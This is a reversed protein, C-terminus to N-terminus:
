KVQAKKLTDIVYDFEANILNSELSSEIQKWIGNIRQSGFIVAIKM